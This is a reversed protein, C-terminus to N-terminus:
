RDCVNLAILSEPAAGDPGMRCAPAGVARAEALSGKVALVRALAERVRFEMRRDDATASPGSLVDLAMRLHRETAARKGQDSEAVAQTFLGRASLPPTGGEAGPPPGRMAFVVLAMLPIAGVIGYVTRRGRHALPAMAHPM